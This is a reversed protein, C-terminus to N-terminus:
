QGAPEEVRDEFVLPRLGGDLAPDYDPNLTPINTGVDDLYAKLEAFMSEAIEPRVRSLDTSERLDMDLDYLYTRDPELEWILKHNGRRIAAQPTVHKQNRYAGYFWILPETPRDVSEGGGSELVPVLSGGDLDDPLRDAAGVWDAITPMFDYGVVPVNSQTGGEIGPGRVFLPVRIGGEWVHTKGWALPVNSTVPNDSEGGNDSTFIVYTDDAVGLRDLTDLIRGVGQDMEETMAAYTLNTHTMDGFMGLDTQLLHEAYKSLTEPRARVPTHVAYYSVMAFFPRGAQAQEDIFAIADDTVQDSRKPDPQRAFGEDNTTLGNHADYGHRDPSGGGMHWKGFHGTAYDPDHQKLLEAITTEEDAIDSVPFPVIMPKNFYMNDHFVQINAVGNEDAVVDIIDTAGLRAATKGTQISMRTPSCNPAPSYANSFKMGEAALRELSPTQYLDSVSDAVRDDMRVSTGTWGQDDSLILVINQAAAQNVVFIAAALALFTKCRNM